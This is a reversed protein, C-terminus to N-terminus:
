AAARRNTSRTSTMLRVVSVITAIVALAIMVAAIDHFLNSNLLSLVQQGYLQALAAEIGFRLLRCIALTVFFTSVRVSLAGAALVFPTFPFPPPILDLVALAIAGSKKIKRRVRDLRSSHIYRELGSEGIKVGTWFTLAAGVLSGSVAIVPVVWWWTRSTRASLIVVAADIGLPLSFVITSDLAALVFVGIPSTFLLVLSKWFSRM